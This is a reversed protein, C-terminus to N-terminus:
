NFPLDEDIADPVQMFGDNDAKQPQPPVQAQQNQNQQQYQQNASKSEAFEQSEVVVDTTYVKKGDRDTYSGTQIRGEVIIKTGKNLYNEAFEASKGFAVCRIFDASQEGERKFRRDCAITYHAIAQNNNASYRIEPAATLRGCLLVKNM